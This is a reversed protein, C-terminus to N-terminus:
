RQPHEPGAAVFPPPQSAESGPHTPAPGCLLREVEELTRGRTEPVRRRVFVWCLANMVAYTLLTPALGFAQVASLATAAILLDFGWVTATALSTAPGRVSLPLVEPALLWVVSQMGAGNCFIYAFLAGIVTWQRPGGGPLLFGVALLAMAAGSAPMLWLLLRRRGIRDVSLAGTIGALVLMVGIGIGTILAVSGGFGADTLMSPAYYVMANIGTLQSFAAVGLAVLLAPRLRRSGLVRLTARLGRPAADGARCVATIEAIEEDVARALRAGAPRLRGLVQRARDAAGREILWRPSEPLPLMGAALVLAPIAALGFMWRWGGPGALLYGVLYSVLQGIAVMLQFLVMLRGRLAPPATEAIYVPVTNSAGGVALGLVVRSLVLVLVDPAVASVLAGCAFVLAVGIVVPRRGIRTSLLGSVPAGIIAGVLIASVVIERQGTGLGLDRGLDLLASSIIGTDYGFLLGGLASVAAVAYLLLPQRRVSGESSSGSADAASADDAAATARTDARRSM